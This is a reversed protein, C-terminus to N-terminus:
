CVILNSKLFNIVGSFYSNSIKASRIFFWATTKKICALVRIRTIFDSHEIKPNEIHLFIKILADKKFWIEVNKFYVIYINNNVLNVYCFFIFYHHIPMSYGFDPSQTQFNWPSITKFPLNFM